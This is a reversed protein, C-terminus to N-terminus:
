SKIINYIRVIQEYYFKFTDNALDEYKNNYDISMKALKLATMFVPEILYKKADKITKFRDCVDSYAKEMVQFYKLQYSMINNIAYINAYYNDISDRSYNLLAGLKVRDYKQIRMIISFKDPDALIHNKNFTNILSIQIGSADDEMTKRTPSTVEYKQKLVDFSTYFSDPDWTLQDPQFYFMQNDSLRLVVPYRVEGSIVDNRHKFRAIKDHKLLDDVKAYMDNIEKSQGSLIPYRMKHSQITYKKLSQITSIVADEGFYRLEGNIYGEVEENLSNLHDESIDPFNKTVEAIPGLSTIKKNNEVM